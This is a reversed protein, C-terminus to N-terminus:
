WGTFNATNGWSQPSLLPIDTGAQIQKLGFINAANSWAVGSDPMGLSISVPRIGFGQLVKSVAGSSVKAEAAFKPLKNPNIHVGDEDAMSAASKSLAKFAGVTAKKLEDKRYAVGHVFVLGDSAAAVKALNTSFAVDEPADFLSGYGYRLKFKEDAVDMALAAKQLIGHLEKLSKPKISAIASAAKTMAAAAEPSIKAIKQARHLMSLGVRSLAGLGRAASTELTCRTASALKVNSKDAADLISTAAAHRWPLPYSMRTEAFLSASKAIEDPSNIPFAEIAPLAYTVASASKVLAQQSEFTVQARAAKVQDHIRFTRAANDVVGAVRAYKANTMNGRQLEISIASDLIENENGVPWLKQDTDAFLGVSTNVSACKVVGARERISKVLTSHSGSVETQDIM